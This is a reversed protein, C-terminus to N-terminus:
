QGSKKKLYPQALEKGNGSYSRLVGDEVIAAVKNDPGYLYWQEYGRGTIHVSIRKGEGDYEWVTSSVLQDGEFNQASKPFGKLNGSTFSKTIVKESGLNDIEIGKKRDISWFEQKGTQRHVRSYSEADRNQKIRYKWDRDGTIQFTKPDWSFIEDDIGMSPKGDISARYSLSFSTGDPLVARSLAAGQPFGKQLPLNKREFKIERGDALQLGALAGSSDHTLQLFKKAFWSGDTVATLRGDQYEFSFQGEPLDLLTLQGDQFILKDGDRSRLIAEKGDLDARWYKKSSWLVTPNRSDAFLSLKTGNPLIAMYRSENFRTFTSELLPLCWWYGLQPSIGNSSRFEIILPISMGNSTTLDTLKRTLRITGDDDMNPFITKFTEDWRLGGAAHINASWLCTIFFLFITKLFFSFVM